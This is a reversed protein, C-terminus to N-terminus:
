YSADCQGAVELDSAVVESEMSVRGSVHGRAVVDREIIRNM